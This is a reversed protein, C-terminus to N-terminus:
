NKEIADTKAKIDKEHQDIQKLITEFVDNTLLGVSQANLEREFVWSDLATLIIDIPDIDGEAKSSKVSIKRWDAFTLTHAKAITNGDLTIDYNFGDIEDM